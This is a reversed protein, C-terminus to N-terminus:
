KIIVAMTVSRTRKGEQVVDNGGAAVVLQIEVGDEAVLQGVHPLPM